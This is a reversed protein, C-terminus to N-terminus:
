SSTKEEILFIIWILILVILYGFYFERITQSDYFLFMFLVGLTSILSKFSLEFSPNILSSMLLSIGVWGFFISKLINSELGEVVIPIVM